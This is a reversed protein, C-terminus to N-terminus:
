LLYDFIRRTVEASFPLGTHGVGTASLNRNLDAGPVVYGNLFPTNTQYFNEWLVANRTRQFAGAYFRLRPDLTFVSDLPVHLEDLAAALQNAAHGGYSHGMITIKTDPAKKLWELVCTEAVSGHDAGQADHPLSLFEVHGQAQALLPKLVGHLVYGASGRAIQVSGQFLPDSEFLAYAARAGTTDYSALGEFAIVLRGISFDKARRGLRACLTKTEAASSAETPKALNQWVAPADPHQPAPTDTAANGGTGPAPQSGPVGAPACRVVGISAVAVLIFKWGSM